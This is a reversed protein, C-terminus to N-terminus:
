DWLNVAPFELAFAIAHDLIKVSLLFAYPATGFVHGILVAGEFDMFLGATYTPGRCFASCDTAFNRAEM